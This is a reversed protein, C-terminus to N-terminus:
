SAFEGNSVDVWYAYLISLTISSCLVLFYIMTAPLGFIPAQYNNAAWYVPPALALAVDAVFWLRALTHM